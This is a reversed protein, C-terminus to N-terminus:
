QTLRQTLYRLADLAHNEKDMPEESPGDAGARYQYGEIERILNECRDSVLLRTPRESGGLDVRQLQERVKRIGEIIENDAGYVVPSGSFYRRLAATYGAGSPDVAFWQLSHKARLARLRPFWGHEDTTVNSEYEEDVIVVRGLSDKGGVIWASPDSWGWDGGCGVNRLRWRKTIPDRYIRELEAHPVVNIARDWEPYVLGKRPKPSQQFLSDWDYDLIEARRKLLEALPWREPWLADGHSDIAPLSVIQWEVEEDASLRGILDGRHWRTHVVIASGGPEVRTLATSTFWQHIRQQIAPSDAEQRNKHPDDVVLLRLGHGTLPGGIGTALVGGGQPTRWEHLAKSDQRLEVGAAAAYDRIQRSKSRAIDAAYSVYGITWDPHRALLRAIGHLVTETKSHRPPVSLCVRIPEREARDFADLLPVLHLPPAFSPSIRPVFDALSTQAISGKTRKAREARVTALLDM